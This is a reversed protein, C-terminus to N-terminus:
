AETETDTNKASEKTDRVSSKKANRKNSNRNSRLEEFAARAGEAIQVPDSPAHAIVLRGSKLQNSILNIDSVYKWTGSEFSGIPTQVIYPTPNFIVADIM